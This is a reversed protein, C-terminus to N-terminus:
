RDQGLSSSTNVVSPFYSMGVDTAVNWDGNWNQEDVTLTFSISDNLNYKFKSFLSEQAGDLGNASMIVDDHLNRESLSHDVIQVM